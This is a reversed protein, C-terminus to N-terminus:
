EDKAAQPVTVSRPKYTARPPTPPFQDKETKPRFFYPRSPFKFLTITRTRNVEMVPDRVTQLPDLYVHFYRPDHIMPFNSCHVRSGFKVLLFVEGGEGEEQSLYDMLSARLIYYLANPNPFLYPEGFEFKVQDPTPMSINVVFNTVNRTDVAPFSPPGNM